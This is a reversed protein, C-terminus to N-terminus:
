YVRLYSSESFRRLPQSNAKEDNQWEGDV